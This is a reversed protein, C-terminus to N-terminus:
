AEKKKFRILKALVLVCLVDLLMTERRLLYNISYIILFAEFLASLAYGILEGLFQPWTKNKIVVSM